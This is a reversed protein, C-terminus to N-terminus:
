HTIQACQRQREALLIAIIEANVSRLNSQAREQVWAKLDPPIRVPTPQIQKSKPMRGGTLERNNSEKLSM